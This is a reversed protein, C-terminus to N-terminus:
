AARWLQEDEGPLRRVLVGGHAGPQTRPAVLVERAVHGPRALARELAPEQGVRVQPGQPARVEGAQALHSGGLAEHELRDGLAQHLGHVGARGRLM